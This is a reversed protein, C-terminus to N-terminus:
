AARLQLVDAHETQKSAFRVRVATPWLLIARLPAFHLRSAPNSPIVGYCVDLWFLGACLLLVRKHM